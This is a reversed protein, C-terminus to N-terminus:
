REEENEAQMKRVRELSLRARHFLQSREFNEVYRAYYKEALPYDQLELEAIRAIQWCLTARTRTSVIGAELAAELHEVGTRYEKREIYRAALTMHMVGRLRSDPRNSVRQELLTLGRSVQSDPPFSWGGVAEADRRAKFLSDALYLAAEDAEGSQPFENILETLLLQGSATEGRALDVLAKGMKGQRRAAELPLKELRVYHERARDLDPNTSLHYTTAIGLLASSLQEQTLDGSEEVKRFSAVAFDFDGTSYARWGQELLQDVSGSASAQGCGPLVALFALLLVV